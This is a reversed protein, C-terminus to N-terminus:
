RSINPNDIIKQIYMVICSFARQVTASRSALANSVADGDVDSDRPHRMEDIIQQVQALIDEFTVRNAGEEHISKIDGVSSGDVIADCDEQKMRTSSVGATKEVATPASMAANSEGLTSAAVISTVNATFLEIAQQIATTQQEIVTVLRSVDADGHRSVSESNLSGDTLDRDDLLELHHNNDPDFLPEGALDSSDSGEEESRFDL